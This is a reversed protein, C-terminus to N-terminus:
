DRHINLHHVQSEPNDPDDLSKIRIANIAARNIKSTFRIEIIRNTAKIDTLIEQVGRHNGGKSAHFIDYDMLKKEGNISVDFVRSSYGEFFPEAFDLEVEYNGNPVTFHYIFSGKDAAALRCTKLANPLSLSPYIFSNVVFTDTSGTYGWGGPIYPQDASLGDKALSSGCNVDYVYHIAQFEKTFTFWSVNFLHESLVQLPVKRSWICTM